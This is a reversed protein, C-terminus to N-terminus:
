FKQAFISNQQECSIRFQTINDDGVKCRPYGTFRVLLHPRDTLWQYYKRHLV